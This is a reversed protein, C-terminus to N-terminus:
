WRVSCDADDLCEGTVLQCKDGTCVVYSESNGDKDFFDNRCDDDLM